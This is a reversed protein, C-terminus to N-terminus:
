HSAQASQLQFVRQVDMALFHLMIIAVIFLVISLYGAIVGFLAYGKGAIRGESAKIERLAVHGCVIAPIAAFIRLPWIALIGAVMSLVALKSTPYRVINSAAEDM